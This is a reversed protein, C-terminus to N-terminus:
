PTLAPPGIHTRTTRRSTDAEAQLDELLIVSAISAVNTLVPLATLNAPETVGARRLLVVVDSQSAVLIVGALGALSASGLRNLCRRVPSV